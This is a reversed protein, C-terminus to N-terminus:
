LDFDVAEPLDDEDDKSQHPEMISTFVVVYSIRHRSFISFGGKKYSCGVVSHLNVYFVHLCNGSDSLKM